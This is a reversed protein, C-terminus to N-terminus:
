IVVSLYVFLCVFSLRCCSVLCVEGRTGGGSSLAVATLRTVKHTANLESNVVDFQSKWHDREATM